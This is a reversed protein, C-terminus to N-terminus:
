HVANHRNDLFIWAGWVETFLIQVIIFSWLGVCLVVTFPSIINKGRPYICAQISLVLCMLLAHYIFVLDAIVVTGAEKFHFFYGLTTYIGYFLDGSINMVLYNM